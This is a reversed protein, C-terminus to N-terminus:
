KLRAMFLADVYDGNRLAYHRGTGETEFGYKRYLALAPANDTFVTLETRTIRLWNDCLNVM